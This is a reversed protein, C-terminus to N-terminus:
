AGYSVVTYDTPGQSGGGDDTPPTAGDSIGSFRVNDIQYVLSPGNAPAPFFVMPATIASLNIAGSATLSSM